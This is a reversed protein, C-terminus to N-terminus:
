DGMDCRGTCKILVLAIYIRNQPLASIHCICHINCHNYDILKIVEPIAIMIIVIIYLFPLCFWNVSMPVFVYFLCCLVKILM